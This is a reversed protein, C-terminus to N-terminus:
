QLLAHQLLVIVDNRDLVKNTVQQLQQKIAIVNAPERPNQFGNSWKALASAYGANLRPLLQAAENMADQAEIDLVLKVALMGRMRNQKVVPVNLAPVRLFGPADMPEVPKPAEGHTGDAKEAEGARVPALLGSLLLLGIVVLLVNAGAGRIGTMFPYGMM